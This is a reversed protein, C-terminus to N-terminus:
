QGDGTITCGRMSATTPRMRASEFFKQLVAGRIVDSLTQAGTGVDAVARTLGDGM